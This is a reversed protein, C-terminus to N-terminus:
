RGGRWGCLRILAEWFRDGWLGAVVGCVAICGFLLLAGIAFSSAFKRWLGIGVLLGLMAGCSFQVWFSGRGHKYEDPTM